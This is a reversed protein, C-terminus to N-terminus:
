WGWQTWLSSLAVTPATEARLTRPGLYLLRAGRAEAREVEEPSWGGEPGVLVLASGPTPGADTIELDGIRGPEVCMVIVEARVDALMAEFGTIPAIVPVVARRCQRTSALAVRQWRALAAGGQWSRRAVAV